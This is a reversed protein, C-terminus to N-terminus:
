TNGSCVAGGNQIAVVVSPNIEATNALGVTNERALRVSVVVTVNGEQLPLPHHCMCIVKTHLCTTHM